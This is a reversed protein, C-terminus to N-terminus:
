TKGDKLRTFTDREELYPNSDPLFVDQRVLFTKLRINLRVQLGDRTRECKELISAPNSEIIETNADKVVYQYPADSYIAGTQVNYLKDIRGNNIHFGLWRNKASLEQGQCIYEVNTPTILRNQDESWGQRLAIQLCWVFMAAIKMKLFHKNRNLSKRPDHGH